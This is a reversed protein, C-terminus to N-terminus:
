ECPRYEECALHDPTPDPGCRRLPEPLAPGTLLGVIAAIRVTRISKGMVQSRGSRVALNWPVM